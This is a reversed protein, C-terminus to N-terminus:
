LNGNGDETLRINTPDVSVTSNCTWQSPSIRTSHGSNEFIQTMTPLASPPINSISALADTDLYVLALDSVPAPVTPASIISAFDASPLASALILRILYLLMSLLHGVLSEVGLVTYIERSHMPNLALLTSGPNEYSEPASATPNVLGIALSHAIGGGSPM